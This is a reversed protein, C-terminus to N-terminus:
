PLRQWSPDSTTRWEAIHGEGTDPDVLTQQIPGNADTPTFLIWSDDPAWEFPGDLCCSGLVALSPDTELGRGGGPVPVIAAQVQTNDGSYGRAIALRSGDNSWSPEAEWASGPGIPLDLIEGSDAQIIRVRATIYTATHWGIYALRSGDPSWTPQGISNEGEVSILTRLKSGDARVLAILQEGIQVSIESGDPPRFAAEIATTPVDLRLIPGRGDAPAISVPFGPAVFMVRAGDPSFTAETLGYLPDPTILTVDTGDARAVYLSRMVSPGPGDQERYFLFHTGDRSWRPDVDSDPGAVIPRAAGTAPDALYIDGDTSFVVLGNTAPGFPPARRTISGAVLVAGVLVIVLLLLIVILRGPVRQYAWLRGIPSTGPMWWRPIAWPPRQRMHGTQALLDSIEDPGPPDVVADLLRPLDREFRGATTM